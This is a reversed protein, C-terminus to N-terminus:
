IVVEEYKESDGVNMFKGKVGSLVHAETESENSGQYQSKDWLPLM